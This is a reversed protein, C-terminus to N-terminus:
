EELAKALIYIGVLILGMKILDDMSINKASPQEKSILSRLENQEMYSLTEYKSKGLLFQMRNFEPMTYSM